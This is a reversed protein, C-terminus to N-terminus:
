WKGVVPMDYPSGGFHFIWNNQYQHTGDPDLIWTGARYVGAQSSGVGAWDGVIYVDGSIGGYAFPPPTTCALNGTNYWIGGPACYSAPYSSSTVHSAQTTSFAPAIDPLWYYPYGSCNSQGLPIYCRVVGVQAFANGSWKGVVPIDGPAGGFAFQYDGNTVQNVNDITGNCNGDLVWLFGSRFIGICSKGNGSWDGVVPVDGPFYSTTGPTHGSPQVGGFQYQLDGGSTGDWIGNCNADLFWTGGSMFPNGTRYIGICSVGAGTWDGSVGIDGPQIGQPINFTITSTSNVDIAHDTGDLLWNGGNPLNIDARFVGIDSPVVSTTISQADGASTPIVKGQSAISVKAEAITTCGTPWGQGIVCASFCIDPNPGYTAVCCCCDTTVDCQDHNDNNATLTACELSSGKDPYVALSGPGVYSTEGRSGNCYQTEAYNALPFGPNGGGGTLGYYNLSTNDFTLDTIGGLDQAWCNPNAGAGFTCLPDIFTCQLGPAIAQASPSYPESYQYLESMTIGDVGFTSTISSELTHRPLAQILQAVTLGIPQLIPNDLTVASHLTGAVLKPNLINTCGYARYAIGYGYVFPTQPQGAYYQCGYQILGHSLYNYPNGPANIQCNSIVTYPLGLTWGDVVSNPAFQGTTPNNSTPKIKMVRPYATHSAIYGALVADPKKTFKAHANFSRMAQDVMAPEHLATYKKSCTADAVCSQEATVASVLDKKSALVKFAKLRVNAKNTLMDADSKSGYFTGDSFVAYKLRIGDPFQVSDMYYTHATVTFHEGPKVGGGSTMSYLNDLGDFYVEKLVEDQKTFEFSYGLLTQKSTNTFVVRWNKDPQILSGVSVRLDPVTKDDAYKLAPRLHSPTRHAKLPVNVHTGNPAPASPQKPQTAPDTTADIRRPTVLRGSSDKELTSPDPASPGIYRPDPQLRQPPQQSQGWGVSGPVILLQFLM